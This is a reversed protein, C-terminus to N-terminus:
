LQSMYDQRVLKIKPSSMLNDPGLEDRVIMVTYNRDKNAREELTRTFEADYRQFLTTWTAITSTDEVKEYLSKGIVSTYRIKDWGRLMNMVQAENSSYLPTERLM